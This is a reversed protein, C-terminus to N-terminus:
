VGRPEVVADVHAVPLTLPDGLRIPVAPRPGDLLAAAVRRRHQQAGGLRLSWSVVRRYWLHLDFELMFGIGGHIQQSTRCVAIAHEAAFAKAQSVEVSAPRGAGLRWVAEAALLEMGDVQILMDASLHQIAQFSGIPRGFAHRQKAYEVAFEMDRRTAGAIQACLLAVAHDFLDALVPAGGIAQDAPVRVADFLLKGQRDKATTVLPVVTLGATGTEVVLVTVAGSDDRVPVLLWDATGAADVFSMTGALVFVDGDRHARLANDRLPDISGTEGTVAYTASTEGRAAPAAWRHRQDDTGYKDVMLAAVVTPHLPTPALHRGAEQMLLGTMTLPLAQGGIDASLSAGVWGLEGMATWLGRDIGTPDAEASRVMAPPCEKALFTRAADRIEREAEDLLVDV